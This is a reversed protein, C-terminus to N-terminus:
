QKQEIPKHQKAAIQTTQATRPERNDNYVKEM